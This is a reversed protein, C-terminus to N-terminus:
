TGDAARLATCNEAAATYAGVVYIVGQARYMDRDIRRSFLFGTVDRWGERSLAGRIVIAPTLDMYAANPFWWLHSFEGVQAFGTLHEQSAPQVAKSMLVVDVDPPETLPETNLFRYQVNAYGRLYWRWQWAFNDSEGVLVRLEAKGKGSEEAVRALCQAGYSTEQGTQSYVLLEDPREFGAYSYSARGATFVTLALLVALGGLSASALTPWAWSRRVMMVMVVAAALSAVLALWFLPERLFGEARGARVVAFGGTVLFASGAAFAGILKAEVSRRWPAMPDLPGVVRATAIALHVAELVLGISRGAVLALPLTVGVLLWPMKEGAFSFAALTAVAWYILFRDFERGRRLLYLGGMVAPVLVLFEYSSLGLLYYYAPQGAREVPQQAIWYGMSGWLGTFFGQWNTFVSTYLPLWIVWFLGVLKLWRRRDWLLGVALAVAGAVLLLFAAIYLGGGVPAGTEADARVLTGAMVEPANPDPNVLVIGLPEQVLALVPVWLPLTVTILVILLDGAPPVQSLLAKGRVWRWLVPAAMIFLPLGLLAALIYASEKTTFALAWLAVWAALLKMSPREFYRWMVAVLALAWFAMYVDNRIFRSFYLVSPSFLLLTSTALVGWRGLENRLLYPLGVLGVGFLAPLLRASVDGSGLLKFVAATTHFLFPGHLLPTHSYGSGEAFLSSYWAHLLEDYHLARGGVDWFRTGIAVVVLLILFAVDWRGALWSEMEFRRPDLRRWDLRWPLPRRPLLGLTRRGLRRVDM